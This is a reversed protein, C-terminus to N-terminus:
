HRPSWNSLLDMKEDVIDQKARLTALETTIIEKLSEFVKFCVVNVPPPKLAATSIILDQPSLPVILIAQEM